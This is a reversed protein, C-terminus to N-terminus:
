GERQDHKPQPVMQELEGGAAPLPRVRHRRHLVAGEVLVKVRRGGQEWRRCRGVWTHTSITRALSLWSKLTQVYYKSYSNSRLRSRIM